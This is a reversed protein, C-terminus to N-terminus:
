EATKSDETEITKLAEELAVESLEGGAEADRKPKGIDGMPQVAAVAGTMAAAVAERDTRVIIFRLVSANADLATKIRDIAPKEVEFAVWGFYANEFNTKKGAIRKSIPYALPMLSPVREGVLEAKESKLLDAIKGAEKTVDEESITSLLHYGIEYVASEPADDEGLDVVGADIDTETETNM